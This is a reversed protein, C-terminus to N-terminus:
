FGSTMQGAYTSDITRAIASWLVATSTTGVDLTAKINGGDASASSRVFLKLQESLVMCYASGLM